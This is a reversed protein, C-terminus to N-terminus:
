PAAGGSRPGFRAVATGWPRYFHRLPRPVFLRWEGQREEALSRLVGIEPGSEDVVFLREGMRELALGFELSQFRETHVSDHILMDVQRGELAAPLETLIDGTLREWRGALQPAVVWGARPDIDISMLRGDVGEAANRELARLVVLSGLGKLIGTEVVLGPKAHRVLLYWLLRNGLPMRRKADIRWRTRQRLRKGLEPDSDVERLYVELETREVGTLATVFELLEDVNGLDYTYSHTEPDFLVFRTVALPDDRFRAGEVRVMHAKLFPRFRGMRQAARVGREGVLRKLM